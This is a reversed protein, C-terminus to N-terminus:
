ILLVTEELLHVSPNRPPEFDRARHVGVVASVIAPPLAVAVFSVAATSDFVKAAAGAAHSIAIDTCESVPARGIQAAGERPEHCCAACGTAGARVMEFGSHGDDGICYIVSAAMPALSWLQVVLIAALAVARRLAKRRRGFFM